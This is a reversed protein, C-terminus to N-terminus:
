ASGADAVTAKLNAVCDGFEAHACVPNGELWVSQLAPLVQLGLYIVVDPELSWHSLEWDAGSRWLVYCLM